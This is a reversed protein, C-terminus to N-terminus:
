KKCLHNYLKTMQELGETTEELRRPGLSGYKLEVEGSLSELLERYKILLEKESCVNIRANEYVIDFLGSEKGSYKDIIIDKTVKM